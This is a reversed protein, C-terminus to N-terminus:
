GRSSRAMLLQNVRKPDARGGSKKMVFGVLVGQLKREGALYRKAEEPHEALAEDIWGSLAADDGV